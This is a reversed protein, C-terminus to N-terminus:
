AVEGILKAFFQRLGTRSAVWRGGVKSAPLKGNELLHFTQRRNRGIEVAILTVGWLLDNGLPAVDNEPPAVCAALDTALQESLRKEKQSEV